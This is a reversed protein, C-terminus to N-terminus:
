KRKTENETVKGPTLYVGRNGVIANHKEVTQFCHQLWGPQPQIDDDFMAVYPTDLLAAVALRGYFPFNFDKSHVHYVRLPFSPQQYKRLMATIDVHHENQYIFVGSIRHAWTQAALLDLQKATYERKYVTLLM